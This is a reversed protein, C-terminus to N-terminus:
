KLVNSKLTKSVTKEMDIRLYQKEYYKMITESYYNDKLTVFM